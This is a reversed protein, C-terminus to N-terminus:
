YFRRRPYNITVRTPKKKKKDELKKKFDRYLIVSAFIIFFFVPVGVKWPKSPSIVSGVWYLVDKLSKIIKSEGIDDPIFEDIIEPSRNGPTVVWGGGGVSPVEGHELLKINIETTNSAINGASDNVWVWVTWDIQVQSPSPWTMTTNPTFTFNHIGEDWSWIYTDITNVDTVTVNLSLNISFYGHYISHNVPHIITINPATTDKYFNVSTLNLNNGTDNCYLIYTNNGEVSITNTFNRGATVATSNALTSYSFYWCSDPNADSYTYNLNSVNIAYSTNTPYVISITSFLTDILFSWTESLYTGNTINEVCEVYWDYSGDSFRVTYNNVSINSPSLLTQNFASNIYLSCNKAIGNEYSFNLEVLNYNLTVTDLPHHLYVTFDPAPGYVEMSGLSTVNMNGADDFLYFLYSYNGEYVTKSVEIPYATGSITIATDNVWIGTWNQAFIYGSLNFNDWTNVSFYAVTNNNSPGSDSLGSYTPADNDIEVVLTNGSRLNNAPTANDYVYLLAHQPGTTGKITVTINWWSWYGSELSGSELTMTFNGTGNLSTLDIITTNMGAAILPSDTVNVQLTVNQGDRASQQGSPYIVTLDKVYPKARDIVYHKVDDDNNGVADYVTANIDYGATENSYYSTNWLCNFPPSTTNCLITWSVSANKYYFVVRNVGINDTANTAITVNGNVFTNNAPSIITVSPNTIDARTLPLYDINNASITYAIDCIGDADGDVCTDSYGTGVPNSWFNGGLYSGGIINTASTKTINWYNLNTGTGQTNLTNNFINNYIVAREVGSFRVGRTNDSFTSNTIICDDATLYLGYRSDSVRVNTLNAYQGRIYLGYDPSKTISINNFIAHERHSYIGSDLLPNLDISINYFKGSPSYYSYIAYTDWGTLRCNKITVNEAAYVRIGRDAADNGDILHNQCDFVVDNSFYIDICHTTSSNIIDAILAYTGPETIQICEYIANIDFTVSSSNINNASDNCYVTWTNNGFVSTIATFNIGATVATANNEGLDRSYWCSSPNTDSYTYNLTSVNVIYTSNTPYVISVQPFVTDKFFYVTTMNINNTTDNCFLTYNNSGEISIVHTFNIGATVATSNNEGLDRSYWCSDEATDDTVTYNLNSVNVAYTINTPYIISLIPPDTDGAAEAYTVNLYPKNTGESSHINLGYDNDADGEIGFMFYDDPLQDEMSALAGGTLNLNHWGDDGNNVTYEGVVFSTNVNTINDHLYKEGKGAVSFNALQFGTMNTINIGTLRSPPGDPGDIYFTFLIEQITSSDPIDSTNWATYGQADAYAGADIIKITTGTNDKKAGCTTEESCVNNEVGYGYGCISYGTPADGKETSYHSECEAESTMNYDSCLNTSTGTCALASRYYIFGDETVNTSGLILTPDLYLNDLTSNWNDTLNGIYVRKESKNLKLTYGSDLLDGFYLDMLGAKIKAKHRRIDSATFGYHDKYTLTIYETNNIVNVLNSINVAYKHESVRKESPFSFEIEPRLAKVQAMSFYNGNYIAGAELTVNKYGKIGQYHFTIDDSQRTIWLTEAVDVWTGNSLQAYRIGSYISATCTGDLCVTKSIETYTVTLSPDETISLPILILLVISIITPVIITKTIKM